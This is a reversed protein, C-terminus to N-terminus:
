FRKLLRDIYDQEIKPRWLDGARRRLEDLIRRARQIERKDPIKVRGTTPESSGEEEQIRRGFPDRNGPRM